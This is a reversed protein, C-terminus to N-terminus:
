PSGPFVAGVQRNLQRIQENYPAVAEVVPLDLAPPLSIGRTSAFWPKLALSGEPEFDPRTANGMVATLAAPIHAINTVM